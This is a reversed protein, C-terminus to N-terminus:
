VTGKSIGSKQIEEVLTTTCALDGNYAARYLPGILGAGILGVDQFNTDFTAENRFNYLRLCMLLKIGVNQNSSTIFELLKSQTNEFQCIENVTEDAIKNNEMYMQENATRSGDIFSLHLLLILLLRM